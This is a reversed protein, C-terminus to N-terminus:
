RYAVCHYHRGFREQLMQRLAGLTKTDYKAADLYIAPPIQGMAWFFIGTNCEYIDSIPMGMWTCGNKRFNKRSCKSASTIASLYYHVASGTDSSIVMRDEYIYVQITDNGRIGSRYLFLRFTWKGLYPILFFWLATCILFCVVYRIKVSLPAGYVFLLIILGFYIVCIPLFWEWFKKPCERLFSRYYSITRWEEPELMFFYNM